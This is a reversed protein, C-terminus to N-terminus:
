STLTNYHWLTDSEGRELWGVAPKISNAYIGLQALANNIKLKNGKHAQRWNRMAKAEESDSDSDSSSSSSDEQIPKVIASDGEGGLSPYWEVKPCIIINSIRSCPSASVMMVIRGRLDNPSVKNGELHDIKKSLLKDGWTREMIEVLEPQKAEDVHCEFSIFVPLDDAKM